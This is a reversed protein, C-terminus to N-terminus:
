KSKAGGEKTTRFKRNTDNFKIKEKARNIIKKIKEDAIKKGYREVLSCYLIKYDALTKPKM